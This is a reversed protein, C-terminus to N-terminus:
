SKDERKFYYKLNNRFDITVSVLEWGEKGMRNLVWEETFFIGKSTEGYRSHLNDETLILYRFTAM